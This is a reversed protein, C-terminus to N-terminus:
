TNKLLIKAKQTILFYTKDITSLKREAVKRQANIKPILEDSIGNEARGKVTQLLLYIGDLEGYYYALNDEYELILNHLETLMDAENTNCDKVDKLAKNLSTYDFPQPITLM